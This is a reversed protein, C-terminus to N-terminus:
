RRITRDQTALLFAAVPALWIMFPTIDNEVWQGLMADPMLVRYALFVSWSLTLGAAGTSFPLLCVLYLAYWPHLTPTLLLYAIAIGYFVHLAPLLGEQGVGARRSTRQKLFFRAYSFAVTFLFVLALIWRAINGSSTVGHLTRYAFSGFEWHQVYIALTVLANKLDPLFPVTLLVTGTLWGIVFLGKGRAPLLVLCIPLFILPFLKVLGACAFTLGALLFYVARSSVVPTPPKLRTDMPDKSLETVPGAILLALFFLLIGAGDIHGSGAIEIIPLPHWAYLAARWSPLQLRSLLRMIIACTALDMAVLLVKLGLVSGGLASGAMFIAQAAPPYITVLRAHNVSELLQALAETQPKVEIPALSYPNHGTLSRIGDWLYRYIDDSLEPHRCLFLSRLLVAVVMITVPSWNVAGKEGTHLAVALLGIVGATVGILTPVALRLDAQVAL